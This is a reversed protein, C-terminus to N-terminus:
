YDHFHQVNCKFYDEPQDQNEQGNDAEEHAGKEDEVAVHAYLPRLQWGEPVGQQFYRCHIQGLLDAISLHSEQSSIPSISYYISYNCQLNINLLSHLLEGNLFYVLPANRGKM